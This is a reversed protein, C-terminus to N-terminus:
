PNRFIINRQPHNGLWHGGAKKYYTPLHMSIFREAVYQPIVKVGSPMKSQSFHALYHRIFSGSVAGPGSILWINDGQKQNVFRTVTDLVHSVWPHHPVTALFNNGISGDGEQMVILEYDSELLEGLAYTCRDDADIYVGGKVWLYALRFIDARMAPHNAMRYARLVLAACEKQIFAEASEDNFLHHEFDPNMLKASQMFLDLDHQIEKTDWFQVIHRPIDAQTVSSELPMPNEFIHNQRLSTLLAICSGLHNPEKEVVAAIAPVQGEPPLQYALELEKLAFPNTAFDLLKMFNMGGKAEARVHALAHSEKVRVAKNFVLKANSLDCRMLYILVLLDYAEISKPDQELLGELQAIALDLDYRAWALGANAMKLRLAQTVDTANVQEIVESVENLLGLKMLCDILVLSIHFDGPREALLEKAKFLARYTFGKAKMARVQLLRPWYHEVKAALAREIIDEAEFFSARDMYLNILSLYSYLFDAQASISDLYATIANDIRGHGQHIRGLLYQTRGVHKTGGVDKPLHEAALDLQGLEILNASVELAAEVNEPELAQIQELHVLAGARDGRNCAEHALKWLASTKQQDTM